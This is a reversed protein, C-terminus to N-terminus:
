FQLLSDFRQFNVPFEESKQQNIKGLKRVMNGSKIYILIYILCYSRTFDADTTQIQGQSIGVREFLM